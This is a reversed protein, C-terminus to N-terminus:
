RTGGSSTDPCSRIVTRQRVSYSTSTVSRSIPCSTCATPILSSKVTMRRATSSNLGCMAKLTTMVDYETRWPAAALDTGEPITDPPILHRHMLALVRMKASSM